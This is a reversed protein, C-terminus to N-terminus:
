ILLVVPNIFDISDLGFIIDDIGRKCNQLQLTQCNKKIM